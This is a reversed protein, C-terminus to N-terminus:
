RRKQGTLRQLRPHADPWITPVGFLEDYLSVLNTIQINSMYPYNSCMWSRFANEIDEFPISGEELKRKYAKLKRRERTISKSNIKEIIRGSDTLIYRHQLYTFGKDVKAIYTKSPHVTLGFLHALKRVDELIDKLEQRDDSIIYSDDSYRAYFRKHRVTQIFNDIYYPFLVGLEQSVQNGMDIGVDGKFSDVVADLVRLVEEPAEVFQRLIVKARQHEISDYFHQFDMLLIYGENGQHRYYERLHKRLRERAFSVGKGKRSASNDYILYDDVAPRIIEDALYHNVAKDTLTNSVINRVHGRECIVLPQGKSPQYTGERLAKQLKATELLLNMEYLQSRYKFNSTKIAKEGATYLDNMNFYEM